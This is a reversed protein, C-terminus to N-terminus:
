MQAPTCAKYKSHSVDNTNNEMQTVTGMIRRTVEELLPRTIPRDYYASLDIPDGYTVRVRKPASPLLWAALINTTQPGGSIAVPYVPARSRLAILAVGSRASRMAPKRGARSLGGEPFICLVHGQRLNRIAQRVARIDHGNRTVPVSHIWDFFWCLVTNCFFEAAILFGVRRQCGAVVFTPDSSCTHNVVLFAPGRPPLPAPRPSSWRHWLRAYSNVLGLGVFDVFGQGSRRWRVLLIAIEAILVVLLWM